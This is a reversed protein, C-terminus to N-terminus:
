AFRRKRGSKLADEQEQWARAVVRRLAGEKGTEEIAKVLQKVTGSLEVDTADVVGGKTKDWVGQDVLYEICSTLDDVGYDYLIPFTASRVKGTLKNKECKAIVNVGIPLNKEKVKISVNSEVALWVEHTAYFKLARGGSRTKKKGFTVGIKDRTQSIIILVSNTRKLGACIARFLKSASKQKNMGYTGKSEQGDCKELAEVEADEEVSGIADFSDLVYIFPVNKKIARLVRAFFEEVTTSYLPEGDDDKAPPEMREALADGFLYSIDMELAHEADDFIIRYDDFRTDNAMAALGTLALFTKGASSDGVLNTMKGAGYGGRHSDSLALNLLTSGTPILDAKASAPAKESKGEVPKM